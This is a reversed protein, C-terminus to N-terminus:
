GGKGGEIRSVLSEIAHQEDVSTQIIRDAVAEMRELPTESALDKLQLRELGGLAQGVRIAESVFQQGIATLTSTAEEIVLDAKDSLDALRRSEEYDRKGQELVLIRAECDNFFALLADSRRDLRGLAKRFKNDLKTATELQSMVPENEEDQALRHTWYAVSRSSEDAAELLPQRAKYWESDPGLTRDRQAQIQDRFSRAVGEYIREPRSSLQRIALESDRRYFHLQLAEYLGVTGTAFWGIFLWELVTDLTSVWAISAVITGVYLGVMGVVALLPLREPFSERHPLLEPALHRVLEEVGMGDTVDELGAMDRTSQARPGESLEGVVVM